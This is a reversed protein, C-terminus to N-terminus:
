DIRRALHPARGELQRDSEWVRWAVSGGCRSKRARRERSLPAHSLPAHSLLHMLSCTCSLASLPKCVDLPCAFPARSGAAVMLSLVVAGWEHERGVQVREDVRM